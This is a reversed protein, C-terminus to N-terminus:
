VSIDYNDDISVLAGGERVSREAGIAVAAAKKAERPTVPPEAEGRACELLRHMQFMDGGHVTEGAIRVRNQENRRDIEVVGDEDPVRIIGESGRYSETKRVRVDYIDQLGAGNYLCLEVNAVVGNDYQVNITAQDLIDTNESLVHQGGFASVAVPDAGTYWNFVDFEHSNKELIAGGSQEQDYRYGKEGPSAIHFPDRVETHNLMGLDGVVGEELLEKIRTFYPSVRRQFGVYLFGEADDAAAIIRDHDALDAALPKECFVDHGDALLPVVGDAHLHNPSCVMAVDFAADARFADFDDYLAPEDGNEAAIDAAKRRSGESPSFVASLEASVDSVDVMWEPEDTGFMEYLDHPYNYGDDPDCGLYQQDSITYAHEVLSRARKGAAVVGIRVPPM